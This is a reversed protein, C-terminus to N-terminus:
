CQRLAPCCVTRRIFILWYMAAPSHRLAACAPPWLPRSVIHFLGIQGSNSVHTGGCFETSFDGAKVVRVINGYKEGFLMMAGLKKAEDIPMEMSEVPHAGM